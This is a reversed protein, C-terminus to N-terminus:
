YNKNSALNRTQCRHKTEREDPSFDQWLSYIYTNFVDLVGFASIVKQPLFSHTYM